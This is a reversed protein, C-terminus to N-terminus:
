VVDPDKDLDEALKRLTDREEKRRLRNREIKDDKSQEDAIRERLTKQDIHLTWRLGAYFGDIASKCDEGLIISAGVTRTQLEDEVKLIGRQHSFAKGALIQAKTDLAMRVKGTKVAVQFDNLVSAAIRKFAAVTKVQAENFLQSQLRPTLRSLVYASGLPINGEDVARQIKKNLKLLGVMNNIWTPTKKIKASLASLSMETDGMRRLREIHRAFEAPETVKGIANAAIQCAYVDEDAIERCTADIKMPVRKAAALRWAGDVLQFTNVIPTPRVLISNLQGQNRMSDVLELFEVSDERVPRLYVPPPIVQAPDLEILTSM